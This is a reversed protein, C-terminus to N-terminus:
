KWLMKICLSMSPPTSSFSISVCIYFWMFSICCVRTTLENPDMELREDIAIHWGPNYSSVCNAVFLGWVESIAAFKDTKARESRSFMDDFRLHRMIDQFRNRPMIRMILSNGPNASWSDRLAPVKTVGRMIVIVIFVMLEPLTMFWGVHQKQRGHQITWEQIIRLMDLTIFCLFSQLRSTIRRTANATPQGDKAYVEIASLSAGWRSPSTLNYSCHSVWIINFFALM